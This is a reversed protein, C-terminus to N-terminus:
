VTTESQVIHTIENFDIDISLTIGLLNMVSKQLFPVYPPWLINTLLPLNYLFM